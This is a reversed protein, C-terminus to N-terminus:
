GGCWRQIDARTQAKRQELEEDNLYRREGNPLPDYVRRATQLKNLNSTARECNEARQAEMSAAQQQVTAEDETDQEEAADSQPDGASRTASPSLPRTPSTRVVIRNADDDQPTDSFVVNGESDVSRFVERDAHAATPLAYILVLLLGTVLRHFIM